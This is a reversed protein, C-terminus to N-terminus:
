HQKLRLYLPSGLLYGLLLALCTFAMARYYFHIDKAPMNYMKLAAISLMGLLVGAALLMATKGRVKPYEINTIMLCSAVLLIPLAIFSTYPYVARPHLIHAVVVVLFAMAPTALGSFNRKVFGRRTFIVLRGFGFVIIFMSCIITLINKFLGLGGPAPTHYYYVVLVLVAPAVCFSIADAISDLTKGHPHPSGFYRAAMGDAGDCVLAILILTSPITIDSNLNLLLAIALAGCLANALTILDAISIKKIANKM